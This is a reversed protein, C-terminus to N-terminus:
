SRTSEARLRAIASAAPEVAKLAEPRGKFWGRVVSLRDAGVLDLPAEVGANVGGFVAEMLAVTKEVGAVGVTVAAIVQGDRVLYATEGRGPRHVFTFARRDKRLRRIRRRLWRLSLLQDRLTAATEFDLAAAAATMRAAIGDLLAREGGQLFLLARRWAEASATGSGTPVGVEGALSLKHGASGFSRPTFGYVANLYSVAQYVMGPAAFPGAAPVGPPPQPDRSVAFAPADGGILAVYARRRRAPHFQINYPPALLHILEVERVAAALEDAVEEWIILEAVAFIRRAKGRPDRARLHSGLRDRLSNSKGVYLVTREGTGLDAPGLLAYVGPRPPCLARLAARDQLAAAAPLAGRSLAALLATVSTRPLPLDGPPLVAAAKAPARVSPRQSM